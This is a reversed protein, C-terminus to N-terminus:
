WLDANGAVILVSKSGSYPIGLIHMKGSVLPRPDEGCMEIRRSLRCMLKSDAHAIDEYTPIDKM